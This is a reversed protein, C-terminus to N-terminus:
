YCGWLKNRVYQSKSVSPKLDTLFYLLFCHSPYNIHLDGNRASNMMIWLSRSFQAHVSSTAASILLVTCSIRTTHGRTLHCCVCGRQSRVPLVCLLQGRSHTYSLLHTHTTQRSSCCLSIQEKEGSEFENKSGQKRKKNEKLAESEMERETECVYVCKNSHLLLCYLSHDCEKRSLKPNELKVCLPPECRNRCEREREYVCAFVCM